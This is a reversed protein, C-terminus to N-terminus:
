IAVKGDNTNDGTRVRQASSGVPLTSPSPAPGFGNLGVYERIAPDAPDIVGCEVLNKMGRTATEFERDELAGLSFSPVPVDPGFNFLVLPRLIQELMVTEELDRKLGQLCMRLVDLHVKALAFSGINGGTEVIMTSNLVAKAIERNHHDVAHKYGTDGQRITELLEAECDAPIAVASQQQIKGLVALFESKLKASAGRPYKGKVTPSGYKELYINWFRSLFDKSWWNKYCARLDSTGYPNAYKGNYTYVVFNRLPLVKQTPTHVVGTINKYEDLQFDFDDPDKSKIYKPIWKGAHKGSAVVQWTINQLSYGKALADCINQLVDYMSGSISDLAYKCFEAVEIGRAGDKKDPCIEWGRCLVSSKKITLCAQVQSDKQMKDYTELGQLGVLDDPNMYRNFGGILGSDPGVESM